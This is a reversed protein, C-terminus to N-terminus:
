EQIIRVGIEESVERLDDSFDAQQDFSVFYANGRALDTFGVKRVRVVPLGRRILIRRITAGNM